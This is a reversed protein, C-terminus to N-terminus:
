FVLVAHSRVKALGSAAMELLESARGDSGLMLRLCGLELEATLQAQLQRKRTTRADEAVAPSAQVAPTGRAASRKTTSNQARAPTVNGRQPTATLANSLDKGPTAFGGGVGSAVQARLKMVYDNARTGDAGPSAAEDSAATPLSQLCLKRATRVAVKEVKQMQRQGAETREQDSQGRAAFAQRFLSAVATSPQQLAAALEFSIQTRLCVRLTAAAAAEVTAEARTTTVPLQVLEQLATAAAEFDGRADAVEAIQALSQMLLLIRDEAEDDL